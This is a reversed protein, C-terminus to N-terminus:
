KRQMPLYVKKNLNSSGGLLSDGSAVVAFPQPGNPINYGHVLITYNGYPANAILVGEV